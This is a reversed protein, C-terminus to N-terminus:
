RRLWYLVMDQCGWSGSGVHKRWLVSGNRWRPPRALCRFRGLNVLHCSADATREPFPGGTLGGLVITMSVTESGVSCSARHRRVQRHVGLSAVAYVRHAGCSGRVAAADQDCLRSKVTHQAKRCSRCCAAWSQSCRGSWLGGAVQRGRDGSRGLQISSLVGRAGRKSFPALQVQRGPRLQAGFGDDPQKFWDVQSIIFQRHDAALGPDCVFGAPRGGDFPRVPRLEDSLAGDGDVGPQGVHTAVEVGSFRQVM